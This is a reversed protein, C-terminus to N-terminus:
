LERRRLITIVKGQVQKKPVPGFDRSDITDTRHDGLVFVCGEPVRYPYEIGEKPYTPYIIEGGQVTGNVLLMGEETINVVDNENAIMRGVYERDDMRFVLVDDKQFDERQWRFGIVLDGDKMAPFMGQGHVQTVLFLQTMLLWVAVGLILVRRILALLERRFRVNDVRRAIVSAPTAPTKVKKAMSRNGKTLAM